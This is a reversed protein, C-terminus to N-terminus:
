RMRPYRSLLGFWSRSVHVKICQVQLLGSHFYRYLYLHLLISVILINAILIDFVLVVVIIIVTDVM